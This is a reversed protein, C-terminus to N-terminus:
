HRFQDKEQGRPARIQALTKVERKEERDFKSLQRAVEGIKKMKFFSNLFELCLRFWEIKPGFFGESFSSSGWFWVCSKPHSGVSRPEPAFVFRKGLVSIPLFPKRTLFLPSPPSPRPPIGIIESGVLLLHTAVFSFFLLSRLSHKEEEEEMKKKTELPIFMM